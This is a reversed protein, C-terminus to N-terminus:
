NHRGPLTSGGKGTTCTTAISACKAQPDHNFTNRDNDGNPKMSSHKKGPIGAAHALLTGKHSLLGDPSMLFFPWCTPPSSGGRGSQSHLFGSHHCQQYSSHTISETRNPRTGLWDTRTPIGGPSPICSSIHQPQPRSSSSASNKEASGPSRWLSNIGLHAALVQCVRLFPLRRNSYGSGQDVFYEQSLQRFFETGDEAKVTLPQTQSSAVMYMQASQIKM